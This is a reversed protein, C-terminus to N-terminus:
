AGCWLVEFCQVNVGHDICRQGKISKDGQGAHPYFSFLYIILRSFLFFSILVCSEKTYLLIYQRM